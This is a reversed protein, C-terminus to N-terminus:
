LRGRENEDHRRSTASLRMRRGNMDARRPALRQNHEDRHSQYAPLSRRRRRRELVDLPTGAALGPANRTVVPPDPYRWRSNVACARRRALLLQGVAPAVSM